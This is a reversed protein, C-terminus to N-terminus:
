GVKTTTLDMKALLLLLLPILVAVSEQPLLVVLREIQYSALQSRYVHLYLSKM